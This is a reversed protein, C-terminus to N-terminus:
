GRDDDLVKPSRRWHDSGFHFLDGVSWTSMFWVDTIGEPLAPAVDPLPGDPRMLVDSAIFPATTFGPLLVFLHKQDRASVRLKRLNHEQAEGRVWEDFWKVLGNGTTPVVGGTRVPDQEVTVYISGRISTDGHHAAHVGLAGLEAVAWERESGDTPTELTRLLEPLQEKLRKVKATPAVSIFWGGALDSEVWRRGSGNILNWLEIPDADAAATVEMAGFAAGNRILDLDYMSPRSGDDHQHVRTGVLAREVCKAVWREESRMTSM